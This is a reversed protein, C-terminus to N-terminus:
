TFSAQVISHCIRYLQFVSYIGSDRVDFLPFLVYMDTHTNQLNDIQNQLVLVLWSRTHSQSGWAGQSVAMAPQPHHLSLHPSLVRDHTYHYVLSCSMVINVWMHLCMNTICVSIWDIFNYHSVRPYGGMHLTFDRANGYLSKRERWLCIPNIPQVSQSNNKLVSWLSRQEGGHCPYGM